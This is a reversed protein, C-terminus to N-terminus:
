FLFVIPYCGTMILVIGSDPLAQYRNSDRESQRSHPLLATNTAPPPLTAPAIIRSELFDPKEPAY